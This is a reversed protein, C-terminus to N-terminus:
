RKSHKKWKIRSLLSFNKGWKKRKKKWRVLRFFQYYTHWEKRTKKKLAFWMDWYIVVLESPAIKEICYFRHYPRSLRSKCIWNEKSKWYFVWIKCINLNRCRLFSFFRYTNQLKQLDCMACPVKLSSNESNWKWNKKWRVTGVFVVRRNRM